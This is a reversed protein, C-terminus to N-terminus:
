FRFDRKYTFPLIRNGKEIDSQSLQLKKGLIKGTLRAIDQATINIEKLEKIDELREIEPIYKRLDENVGMNFTYDGTKIASLNARAEQNKEPINELCNIILESLSWGKSRAYDEAIEVVDVKDVPYSFSTIINKKRM